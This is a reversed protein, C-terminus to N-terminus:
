TLGHILEHLATLILLSSIFILPHRYLIELGTILHKTDWVWIFLTCPLFFTPVLLAFGLVNARSMSMTRDLKTYESTDTKGMFFIKDYITLHCTLTQKYLVDPFLLRVATQFAARENIKNQRLEDRCKSSFATGPLTM